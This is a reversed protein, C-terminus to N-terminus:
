YLFRSAFYLILGLGSFVASLIWFRMTIQAESWGKAEFHHHIPAALFVKKGGRLQKSILQIIVSMAEIVLVMGIIPLFFISNTLAAIVALVVTLGMIGTEGMYFRAPPVNFWLYTTLAGIIIAIFTALDYEARSYAIIGFSAFIPALVGASLGDLGDVVGTSFTALVVIIFLLLYWGDIMVNGYFPIYISNWGLKFHFWWAGALAIALVLGIRWRARIGGGIYRGNNGITMLDDALGLLSSAVLSFLPLWTEKRSLFNIKGMFSNPFFYSALFAIVSVILVTVWILIGGMRPTKVEKEAHFKQFIPTEYGGITRSRSQKKWAKYKYLYHILIPALVAAILFSFIFFGIFKVLLFVQTHM